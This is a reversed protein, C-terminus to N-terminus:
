PASTFAATGGKAIATCVGKGGCVCDIPNQCAILCQMIPPAPAGKPLCAGCCDPGAGSYLVCDGNSSCAICAGTYAVDVGACMAECSNSYTKGDVGCVPM